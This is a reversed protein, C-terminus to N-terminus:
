RSLQGAIKMEIAWVRSAVAAGIPPTSTNMSPPQDTLNHALGDAGDVRARKPMPRDTEPTLSRGRKRRQGSDSALQVGPAVNTASDNSESGNEIVVAARTAVQVAQESDADAAVGDMEALSAAELGSGTEVTAAAPHDNNQHGTEAQDVAEDSDPSSGEAQPIADEAATAETNWIDMMDDVTQSSFELPVALMGELAIQREQWIQVACITHAISLHRKLLKM